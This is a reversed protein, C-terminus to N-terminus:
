VCVAQSLWRNDKLWHTITETTADRGILDNMVHAHLSFFIACNHRHRHFVELDPAPPWIDGPLSKELWDSIMKEHARLQAQPDLTHLTKMWGIEGKLTSGLSFLKSDLIQSSWPLKADPVIRRISQILLRLQPHTKKADWLIGLRVM